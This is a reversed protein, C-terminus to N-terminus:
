KNASLNGDDWKPHAGLGGLLWGSILAAPIGGLLFFTYNGFRDFVARAARPHRETLARVLTANDAAALDSPLAPESVSMSKLHIVAGLGIRAVAHM